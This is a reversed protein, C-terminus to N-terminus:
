VNNTKPMKNNIWEYIKDATAFMQDPTIIKAVALDKSYSMAFGAVKIELPESNYYPKKAGGTYTNQGQPQTIHKFKGDTLEYTFDKGVAISDHNKVKKGVSGKSGDELELDHYYIIGNQGNYENKFVSSKIKSTKESM